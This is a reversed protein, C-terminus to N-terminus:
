LSEKLAKIWDTRDSCRKVEEQFEQRCRAVDKLLATIHNTLWEEATQLKIPNQEYSDYDVCDCKISSEIESIMFDKLKQHEPTPPTWTKVKDLMALYKDKLVNNEEVFKQREKLKSWFEHNAGTRAERLTMKPADEYAAEAEALREIYYINPTFEDPIPTNMPLERMGIYYRACRLVFENFSTNNEIEYTYATPSM